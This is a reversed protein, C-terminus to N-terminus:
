VARLESNFALYNQCDNQCYVTHLLEGAFLHSKLVIFFSNNINDFVWAGEFRLPYLENYKPWWDKPANGGLTPKVTVLQGIEFKM